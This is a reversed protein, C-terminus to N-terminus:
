DQESLKNLDSEYVDFWSYENGIRGIHDVSKEALERSEFVGAFYGGHQDYDNYQKILIFMTPQQPQTTM